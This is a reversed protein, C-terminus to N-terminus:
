WVVCAGASGRLKCAGSILVAIAAFQDSFPAFEVLNQQTSLAGLSAQKATSLARRELPKWLPALPPCRGRHLQQRECGGGSGLDLVIEGPHLQALATPNGCGLSDRLAEEPIAAADSADYLNSTIADCCATAGGCSPTEGAQAQRALEGYKERVVQKIEPGSM